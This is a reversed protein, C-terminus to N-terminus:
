LEAGRDEVSLEPRSARDEAHTLRTQVDDRLQVEINPIGLRSGIERLATQLIVDMDLTERMQSTIDGIVRERQARSQSESLLRANELSLGAQLGISEVLEREEPTWADDSDRELEITGVIQGRLQIPVSIHGNDGNGKDAPADEAGGVATADGTAYVEFGDYGYVRGQNFRSWLANLREGYATQLRAFTQRSEEFLRANQIGLALQDAVIEVVEIDERDFAAPKESQVDLVGIVRDQAVLPVTMESRTRSLEPTDRWTQDAAVDLAIRAEGRSSVYGVIGEQGVRLRHGRAVLQRGGESSAYRLVAYEGAEDVLFVGVHYYDFREALLDSITRMLTETDRIGAAESAVLAATQFQLSRERLDATREQVQEEMSTRADELARNTERLATETMRQKRLNNRQLIVIGAAIVIVGAVSGVVLGYQELVPPPQNIIVTRAGSIGATQPVEGPSVNFRQLQEYDFMYRNPSQEVVPLNRADAGNLIQVVIEAATRGQLGSNTLMGGMLGFGLYFDWVGYIPRDTISMLLDMGQRYDYFNGEQDRNFVVLLVLEEDSLNRLRQLDAVSANTLMEFAVRGEFAPVAADVQQQVLRGTTTQDSIVYIRETEPHIDLAVEITSRPDMQEVVGTFSELGALDKSQFFNVGCFVVPVGPFLEDRYRRLFDYGNNDSVLIVDLSVDEYKDQLYDYWSQEVQENMPLRKTDMYELYLETRDAVPNYDTDFIVERTAEVIGDTWNLGHHYSNLM